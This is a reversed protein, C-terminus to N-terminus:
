EKFDAATKVVKKVADQSLLFVGEVGSASAYRAAGGEPGRGSVALRYAPGSAPVFEVMVWPKDLGYKPGDLSSHSVFRDCRLWDCERIYDEAKKDDFRVHPDAPCVWHGAQRRLELTEKAQVIRILDVPEESASGVRLHRLEATFTDHFAAPMQGVAIIKGGETWVFSDAGIKAV